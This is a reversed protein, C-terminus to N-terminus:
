EVVRFQVRAEADDGAVRDRIRVKLVYDGSHVKTLDMVFYEQMNRDHGRLDYKSSLASRKAFPNLKSFFSRKASRLTYELEYDTMGSDDVLLHSTEFYITIPRKRHVIRYPYPTVTLDRKLFAPNTKNSSVPQVSYALEVDSISLRDGSKDPISFPIVKEYLRNTTPCRIEVALSYAGPEVSENIQDIYASNKEVAKKSLLVPKELLRHLVPQGTEDRIMYEMQLESHSDGRGGLQGSSIGLYIELRPTHSLNFRAASVAGMLPKESRSLHSVVKPLESQKVKTDMYLDQLMAEARAVMTNDPGALNEMQTKLSAYQHSDYERRKAFEIMNRLLSGYYEYMTVVPSVNKATPMKLEYRATNNIFDFVLEPGMQQYVWCENDYLRRDVSVQVRQDPPGYQVYIMGRDDYGRPEISSFWRRAYELREWHEPLRENVFTAPTPDQLMWFQLLAKGKDDAKRFIKRDESEMIDFVETFLSDTIKHNGITSLGRYFAQTSKVIDEHVWIRATKLLDIPHITTDLNAMSFRMRPAQISIVPDTYANPIFDSETPRVLVDAPLYDLPLEEAFREWAWYGHKRLAMPNELHGLYNYVADMEPDLELWSTQVDSQNEVGFEPETKEKTYVVRLFGDFKKLIRLSSSENIEVLSDAPVTKLYRDAPRQMPVEDFYMIFGEERLRNEYLSAFFHRMSGWYTIARNREWTAMEDSDSSPLPKYVSKYVFSVLNGKSFFDDLYFQINYGLARNEIHLPDAASAQLIGNEQNMEFDLMESNKIHCQRAFRSQGFFAHEFRKLNTKWVHPFKAEVRIEEGQIPEQFLAIDFNYPGNKELSIPQTHFTYGVMSAALEYSGEPVNVISFVGNEDTAAGRTTNVIFVNVFHLPERTVGDIVRGTVTVKPVVHRKTSIPGSILVNCSVLAIVLAKKM